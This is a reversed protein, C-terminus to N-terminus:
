FAIAKEADIKALFEAFPITGHDQERVRVAVKGAEAEQEGVILMYPVRQNRADRIKSGIKEPSFDGDARVGAALLRRMVDRGYAESKESITLVRVQEPALWVPLWGAYHEIIIGLFRELSGFIARHVVVPTKETNDRDQYKLAFRQPLQYDLQITSTQWERRLADSVIFDIKPGYFAGDGENIRFEMGNNRLAAMLAAEAADWTAKEGLFSEPRTSLYVKSFELGFPRYVRKILAILNTIEGEIQEPAVFIHSDDQCFQRVRTLGSLAGTAENRHLVGMDAIRLPLERYSRRFERFILMHCPCNMPKLAYEQEAQEGGEKPAGEKQRVIFMNERYHDAHGSTEFLNMKFLMPTFVQQYGEERWLRGMMDALTKYLTHGKPLWITEGPSWDHHMFLGMERGVRRHDRKRAEELIRLHEELEEKSAFATGKVRCLQDKTPDGKWYAGSVAMIKFHRLVGTSPVHPGRCLDTFEGQDYVSITAGDPINEIIHQKFKEGRQRFLELAQARDLERRRIPLNEKAIKAMEAEIAAFDEVTLPPETKIDYWFGDETPPGDELMADPRLRKIAQAMLHATSHRLLALAEPSKATIIALKADREITTGMDVLAGDVTAALAAKALGAGISAAVEAATVPGPFQRQSGDPLTITIPPAIASM